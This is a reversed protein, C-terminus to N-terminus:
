FVCFLIRSYPSLGLDWRLSLFPIHDLNPFLRLTAIISHMFLDHVLHMLYFPLGAFLPIPVTLCLLYLGLYIDM